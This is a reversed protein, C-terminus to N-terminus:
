EKRIGPNNFRQSAVVMPYQLSDQYEGDQETSFVTSSVRLLGYSQHKSCRQMSPRRLKGSRFAKCPGPHQVVNGQFSLRNPQPLLLTSGTIPKTGPLPISPQLCATEPVGTHGGGCDCGRPALPGAAKRPSCSGPLRLLCPLM